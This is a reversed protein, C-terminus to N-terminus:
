SWPPGALWGVLAWREGRTVPRVRHVLFSPFATISGQERAGFAAPFAFELEGGEYEEPASLQVTFSLKRERVMGAGTDVHWLYQGGLPYVSLQLDHMLCNVAFGFSERNIELCAAILRSVLWQHERRLPDIWQVNGKRYDMTTSAEAGSRRVLADQAKGPDYLARIRACEEPTFVALRHYAGIFERPDEFVLQPGRIRVPIEGPM